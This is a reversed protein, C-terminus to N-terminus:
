PTLELRTPSRSKLGNESQCAEPKTPPQQCGFPRTSEPVTASGPFLGNSARNLISELDEEAVALTFPDCAALQGRIWAAFKVADGSHLNELAATARDLLTGCRITQPMKADNRTWGAPLAAIGAEPHVALWLLRALSARLYSAGGGVPGSVRWGGPADQCQMPEEGEGAVFDRPLTPSPTIKFAEEGWGEGGSRPPSPTPGRGLISPSTFIRGLDDDPNEVIALQLEQGACRWALFRVPAPWTGARNFKPRLARLLEAERALAAPEDPCEHLEIRVVARLLRLHRRPLRDPNAVRYSGLRQRLNKAKGVYLVTDAADRMLYVGASQPAQRFFDRGLREALPRPDPFLLLQKM